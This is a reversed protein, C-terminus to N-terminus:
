KRPTLILQEPSQPHQQIYESLREQQISKAELKITSDKFGDRLDGKLTIFVHFTNDPATPINNIESKVLLHKIGEPSAQTQHMEVRADTTKTDIEIILEIEIISQGTIHLRFVGSLIGLNETSPSLNFSKFEHPKIDSLINGTIPASVPRRGSLEQNQTLRFSVGTNNQIHLYIPKNKAELEISQIATTLLFLPAITFLLFSAFKFNM